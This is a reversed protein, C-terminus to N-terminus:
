RYGQGPLVNDCLPIKAPWLARFFNVNENFMNLVLILHM